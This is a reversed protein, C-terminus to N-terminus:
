IKFRRMSEEVEMNALTIYIQTTGISEHGLIRRLTELDHTQRYYETGFFHRLSHPPIKKKIGAKQCYMKIMQWLYQRSLKEGKLTSFFYLSSVKGKKWDELTKIADPPVALDRDKAGKGQVVRFKGTGLDIDENKLDCVESVRLGTNLMLTLIARNRRGTLSTKSPLDLVRAVEKKDLIEPLSKKAMNQRM